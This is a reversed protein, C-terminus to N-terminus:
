HWASSEMGRSRLDTRAPRLFRPAAMDFGGACGPEFISEYRAHPLSALLLDRKRAEYWSGEFHWPDPGRAFLPDFFNQPAPATM